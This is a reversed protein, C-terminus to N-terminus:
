AGVLEYDGSKMHTIVQRGLMRMLIMERQSNSQGQYIGIQGCFPGAKLRVQSGRKIEPPLAILGLVNEDRRLREITQDSIRAPENGFGVVGIVGRMGRLSRWSECVKVFIYGPFLASIRKVLKGRFSVRREYRPVYCEFNQERLNREALHERLSHTRVALWYNL